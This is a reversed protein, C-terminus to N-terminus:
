YPGYPNNAVHLIALTDDYHTAQYKTPEACPRLQRFAKQYYNVTDGRERVGCGHQVAKGCWFIVQIDLVVEKAHAKSRM